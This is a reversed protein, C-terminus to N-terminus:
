FYALCNPFWPPQKWRLTDLKNNALVVVQLQKCRGLEQPIAIDVLQNERLMLDRLRVMEGVGKPLAELKNCSVDLKTLSTLGEISEPLTSIQNDNLLLVELKSLRGIHYDVEEICNHSLNLELLHELKYVERTIHTLGNYQLFLFQLSRLYCLEIPMKKMQNGHLDLTLLNHIVPTSKPLGLVQAGLGYPGCWHGKYTCEGEMRVSRLKDGELTFRITTSDHALDEKGTFWHTCVMVFTDGEKEHLQYNVHKCLHAFLCGILCHIIQV